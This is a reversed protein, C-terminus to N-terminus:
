VGESPNEKQADLLSHVQSMLDSISFSESQYDPEIGAIFEVSITNSVM